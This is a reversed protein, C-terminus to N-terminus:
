HREDSYFTECFRGSFAPEEGAAYLHSTDGFQSCRFTVIGQEREETFLTTVSSPAAMFHHWYIVPSAGTLHSLMVCEVGFHCFFIITDRNGNEARYVNGQRVYGNEELVRDLGETVHRYKKDTEGSRMIPTHIWNNKDYMEEISTWYGPMLDWCVSRKRGTEPDDVSADFERLWDKTEAERGIRKLTVGATDKARGLPSCYIGKYKIKSLRDALFEAERWGKETLSDVSYDPDCHRVILIRM